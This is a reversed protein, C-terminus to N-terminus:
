LLGRPRWFSTETRKIRTSLSRSKYNYTWNYQGARPFFVRCLHGWERHLFQGTRNVEKEAGKLSLVRTINHDTNSHVQGTNMTKFLGRELLVNEGQLNMPMKAPADKKQRRMCEFWKSRLCTVLVSQDQEKMALVEGKRIAGCKISTDRKWTRVTSVNRNNIVHYLLISVLNM